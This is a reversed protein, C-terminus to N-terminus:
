GPVSRDSWKWLRGKDLNGSTLAGSRVQAYHAYHGKVRSLSRRAAATTPIASPNGTSATGCSNRSTNWTPGPPCPPRRATRGAGGQGPVTRDPGPAQHPVAATGVASGPVPMAAAAKLRGSIVAGVTRRLPDPLPRAIVEWQLLVPWGAAFLGSAM